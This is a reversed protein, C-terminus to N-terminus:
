KRPRAALPAWRRRPRVTGVKPISRWLDVGEGRAWASLAEVTASRDSFPNIIRSPTLLAPRPLGSQPLVSDLAPVRLASLVLSAFLLPTLCLVGLVFAKVLWRTQVNWLFEQLGRRTPPHVTVTPNSAAPPPQPEPEPRRGIFINSSNKLAFYAENIKQLHQEARERLQPDSEFRDPHWVRVLDKYARRVEEWSADPAVGLARFCDNHSMKSSRRDHSHPADQTTSPM